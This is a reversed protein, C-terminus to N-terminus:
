RERNLLDKVDIKANPFASPAATEGPGVNFVKTYIGAKPERHVQVLGEDLNVMWVEPVRAKAYLPIKTERDYRVTSNSVEILLFVDSPTALRNKFEVVDNPVLMLDPYLETEKSIKLAMQPLVLWRDKALLTLYRSLMATVGIHFPGMPPMHLILGNVLEVRADPRIIENDIM